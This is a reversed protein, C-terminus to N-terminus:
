NLQKNWAEAIMLCGVIMLSGGDNDEVVITGEVHITMAPRIPLRLADHRFIKIKCRMLIGAQAPIVPDTITHPTTELSITLAEAIMLSGVIMLRSVIM